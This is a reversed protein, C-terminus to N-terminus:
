AILCNAGLAELAGVTGGSVTTKGGDFQGANCDRWGHNTLIDAAIRDPPRVARVSSFVVPM